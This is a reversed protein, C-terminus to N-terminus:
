KNLPLSVTFCSGKGKGDSEATIKGQHYSIVKEAIALGLGLGGHKRTSSTDSQNFHGFIHPLLDTRIGEGSDAIKLYLNESDSNLSVSIKGNSPTFKISNDLLRLVTKKIKKRDGFVTNNEASLAGSLTIEKANVSNEIESLCEEIMKKFSFKEGSTQNGLYNDDSFTIMDEVLDVQLRLNKNIIEVAKQKAEDNLNNSKLIQLWGTIANLPTRLEHSVTSIFETKVKDAKEAFERAKTESILLKQVEAESDSLEGAILLLKQNATHQSFSLVFLIVSIALGLLFIIPTWWRLSEANFEATPTYVITWKKNGVDIQSVETLDSEAANVSQNGIALLSNEDIGEDYIKFSVANDNLQKVVDNVFIGARFPSYIYGQIKERRQEITAPIKDDRFIPLYILFGPNETDQLLLVKGSVTYSGQDRATDLALKRVSETSMDFGIAKQNSENLPALYIISQYDQRPNEPTVKFNEHGERQMQKELSEKEERKFVKSFGIAQIGPYLENLRLNDVFEEFSQKDVDKGAAFFGRGARLLTIYNDLKNKITERAKLVKNSFRQSDITKTSAYYFYTIAVTVILSITFVFYPIKLVSKNNEASQLENKIKFLNFKM